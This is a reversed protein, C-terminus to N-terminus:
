TLELLFVLAPQGIDDQRGHQQWQQPMQKIIVEKLKQENRLSGGNHVLHLEDPTHMADM